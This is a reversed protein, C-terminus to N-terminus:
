GFESHYLTTNITISAFVMTSFFFVIQVVGMAIFFKNVQSIFTKTNPVCFLIPRTTRTTMGPLIKKM